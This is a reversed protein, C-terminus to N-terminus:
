NLLVLIEAPSGHLSAELVTVNTEMGGCKAQVGIRFPSILGM